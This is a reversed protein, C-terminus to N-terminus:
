RAGEERALLADGALLAAAVILAFAVGPAAGPWKKAPRQPVIQPKGKTNRPESPIRPNTAM